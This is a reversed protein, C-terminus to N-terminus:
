QIYIGYINYGPLLGDLVRLKKVSENGEQTMYYEKNCNCLFDLDLNIQLIREGIEKMINELDGAVTHKGFIQMWVAM